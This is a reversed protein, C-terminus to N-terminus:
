SWVAEVFKFSFICFDCRQTHYRSSLKCDSKSKRDLFFWQKKVQLQKMKRTKTKKPKLKLITQGRRIYCSPWVTAGEHVNVQVHTLSSITQHRSELTLANGKLKSFSVSHLKFDREQWVGSKRWWGQLDHMGASLLGETFWLRVPLHVVGVRGVLVHCLNCVVVDPSHGAVFFVVPRSSLVCVDGRAHECFSGPLPFTAVFSDKHGCTSRMSHNIHYVRVCVCHCSTHKGPPKLMHVSRVHQMEAVSYASNTPSCFSVANLFHRVLGQTVRFHPFHTIFDKNRLALLQRM